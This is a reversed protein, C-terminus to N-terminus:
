NTQATCCILKSGTAEGSCEETKLERRGQLGLRELLLMVTGPRMDQRRCKKGQCRNPVGWPKDEIGSKKSGLQGMKEMTIAMIMIINSSPGCLLSGVLHKDKDWFVPALTAIKRTM